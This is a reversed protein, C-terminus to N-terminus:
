AERDLAMQVTRSRIALTACVASMHLFNQQQPGVPHMGPTHTRATGAHPTRLHPTPARCSEPCCCPHPSATGPVAPPRRVNTSDGKCRRPCTHANHPRDRPPSPSVTDERLAPDLMRPRKPQHHTRHSKRPRQAPRQRRCLVAAAHPPPYEVSLNRVIRVRLTALLEACRCTCISGAREVIGLFLSNGAGLARREAVRSSRHRANRKWTRNLTPFDGHVM